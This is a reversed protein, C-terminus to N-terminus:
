WGSVFFTGSATENPHESKLFQSGPVALDKEVYTIQQPKRGGQAPELSQFRAPTLDDFCQL